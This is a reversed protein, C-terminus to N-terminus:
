DRSGTTRLRLADRGWEKNIEPTLLGNMTAKDPSRFSGRPVVVLGSSNFPKLHRDDSEVVHYDAYGLKRHHAAASEEYIAIIMELIRPVYDVSDAHVHLWFRTGDPGQKQYSKVDAM